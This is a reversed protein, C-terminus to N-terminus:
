LNALVSFARVRSKWDGALAQIKWTGIQDIQDPAAVWDALGNPGDVIILDVDPITFQTGDPRQFIIDTPNHEAIDLNVPGIDQNHEDYNRFSFSFQAPVGMQIAM